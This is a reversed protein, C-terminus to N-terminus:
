QLEPFKGHGVGKSLRSDVTWSCPDRGTGQLFTGVIFVLNDTNRFLEWLLCLQVNETSLVAYSQSPLAKDNSWVRSEQLHCM